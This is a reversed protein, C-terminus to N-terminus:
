GTVGRVKWFLDVATTGTNTIRLAFGKSGALPVYASSVAITTSGDNRMGLWKPRERTIGMSLLSPVVGLGDWACVDPTAALRSDLGPFHRAKEVDLVIEHTVALNFPTGTTVVIAALDVQVATIARNLGLLDIPGILISEQGNLPAGCDPGKELILTEVAPAYEAYTGEGVLLTIIDPNKESSVYIRQFPKPTTWVSGIKHPEGKRGNEDSILVPGAGGSVFVFNGQIEVPVQQGDFPIEVKKPTKPISTNMELGWLPFAPGNWARFAGIM